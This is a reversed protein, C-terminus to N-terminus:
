INSSYMQCINMENMHSIFNGATLSCINIMSKVYLDELSKLYLRQRFENVEESM